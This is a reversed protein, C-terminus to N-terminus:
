GSGTSVTMQGCKVLVLPVPTQQSYEAVSEQLDAFIVDPRGNRHYRLSEFFGTRQERGVAVDEMEFGCIFSYVAWPHYKTPKTEDTGHGTNHRRLCQKLDDCQGVFGREPHPISVLQYIYGCAATPLERHLPLLPCSDLSVQRVSHNTLENLSELYNRIFGDWLSTQQLVEVIAARTTAPAGVFIIDKAHRARSILVVFQGKQWLKYQKNATSIETAYMSLTDGQSRHVTSSLHYHVAWQTRRAFQLARAVPVPHTTHRPIRIEPWTAPINLVDIQRTGPPALRLTLKQQAPNVAADPLATVVAVQGQSFRVSAHKENYTMRVVAGVFLRCTEYEYCSRSLKKSVAKDAPVWRSHNQVEDVAEFQVTQQTALFQDMLTQEAARTSVIRVANSPVESWNEATSCVSM